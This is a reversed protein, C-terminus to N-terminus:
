ARGLFLASNLRWSYIADGAKKGEVGSPIFCLLTAELHDCVYPLFENLSEMEKFFYKRLIRLQEKKCVLSSYNPFCPM